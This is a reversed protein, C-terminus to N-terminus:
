HRVYPKAAAQKPAHTAQAGRLTIPRTINDGTVSVADVGVNFFFQNDVEAIRLRVLRGAWPSLDFQVVTPALSAPDGPRTRFVNALVDHSKLSYLGANPLTLDIRVQQNRAAGPVLMRPSFFVEARNEYWLTLALMGNDPVRFTQFLVNGGPGTQDAVAAYTGDPPTPIPLGSLPSLDGSYVFWGHGVAGPHGPAHGWGAMNGTEFGGNQIANTAASALSTVSAASLLAVGVVLVRRAGVGFRKM